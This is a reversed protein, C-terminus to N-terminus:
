LLLARVAAAIHTDDTPLVSRLDIVATTDRRRAIIPPDHNALESYVADASGPLVILKTPITAGPVSGAGPLSQGDKITAGVTGALVETARAEIDTISSSAMAWFPIELVRQDAYMELTAALATLAPGDLRVARAVPHRTAREIAERTGVMMGAQPGGFLKDGSFLVLDAGAAVTQKVGPEGALWSRDENSLWPANEDILGSGVDAIFPVAAARALASLEAYSVDESFGEVRYNSPHVKLIADVSGAVAEYDAPRTRNTTGIEVLTAGSAAMLDPLRFSGGIEILEGRSVAVRAGNGAVSALALLLAGANNNVAFGDEAGTVTPLLIRLYASRSSRRGSRIDIEVNGASAAAAGALDAVATNLVARGLNTHLLVGTANIVMQPRAAEINSLTRSADTSPDADQGALISARADDVAKQCVQVIVAWPLPSDAEFQLALADVSPLDRTEMTTLTPRPHCPGSPRGDVSSTGGDVRRDHADSGPEEKSEQHDRDGFNRQEIQDPCPDPNPRRKADHNQRCQESGIENGFLSLEYPAADPRLDVLPLNRSRRHDM